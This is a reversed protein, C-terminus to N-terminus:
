ESTVDGRLVFGSPEIITCVRGDAATLQVDYVYDGSLLGKTAEPAFAFVANGGAFETATLRLVPREDATSYKITLDVTDGPIFPRPAEGEMCSVTLTDSDGRMMSLDTGNVIM